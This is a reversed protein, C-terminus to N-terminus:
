LTVKTEDGDPSETQQQAISPHDSQHKNGGTMSCVGSVSWGMLELLTVRALPPIAPPTHINRMTATPINKQMSEMASIADIDTKRLRSIDHM